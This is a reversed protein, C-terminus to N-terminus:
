GEEKNKLTQEVQYCAWDLQKDSPDNPYMEFFKERDKPSCKFLMTSLKTRVRSMTRNMLNSKFHTM